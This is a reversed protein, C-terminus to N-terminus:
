IGLEDAAFRAISMRSAVYDLENDELFWAASLGAYAMIWMLLRQRDLNAAQTVVILQRLFRERQTCTSLEPNCFLNAYDYGREGFLGKPDIALWGREGFDLINGHHIDGHLVMEDQPSSLLTEAVSCCLPMLPDHSLSAAQRLANFRQHLAELPPTTEERHIHLQTVVRCIIQSAEDDEDQSHKAMHLLNKGGCAREMLLAENHHAVVKAAGNGNWWQMLDAGRREEEDLALKLMLPRGDCLVPLLQSSHTQIPVGDAQLNWRTLWHSFM